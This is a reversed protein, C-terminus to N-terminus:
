GSLIGSASRHGGERPPFRAWVFRSQRPRLYFQQPLFSKTALVSLSFYLTHSPLPAPPPSLPPFNFIFACFALPATNVELSHESYELNFRQAASFERIRTFNFRLGPNLEGKRQCNTEPSIIGNLLLKYITFNKNIKRSTPSLITQNYKEKNM